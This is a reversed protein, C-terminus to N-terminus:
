LPNSRLPDRNLLFLKILTTSRKRFVAICIQTRLVCCARKSMGVAFGRRIQEFSNTILDPLIVLIDPGLLNVRSDLGGFKVGPLDDSPKILLELGGHLFRGEVM